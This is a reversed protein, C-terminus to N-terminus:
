KNAPNSPNHLWNHENRDMLKLNEIRNDKKDGNIHHVSENETPLRGISLAMVLVHEPIYGNWKAFPSDVGVKVLKYGKIEIEDKWRHHDKGKKHNGHKGRNDPLDEVSCGAKAATALRRYYTTRSCDMGKFM